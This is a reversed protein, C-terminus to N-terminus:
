RARLIACAVTTRVHPELDAAVVAARGLDGLLALTSGAAARTKADSAAGDRELIPTIQSIQAKALAERAAAAGLGAASAIPLLRAIIAERAPSRPPAGGHEAPTELRRALAAVAVAEDPDSEAKAVAERLPALSMPVLKIAQIRDASPGDKVAREMAGAAEAAGTGGAHVLASAALIAAPGRQTDVVWSLERRGGGPLSRPSAWAAVIAERASADARPWLDKLATVVREGGLAGAARIAQDRAAPYPDVRAAELVAEVDGPDAATSAAHLANRRVEEDGDAILRRRLDGEDESVLSRAGLPRFAAEPDGAERHAWAAYRGPAELGAEVLLLAAAAGITDRKDARHGLATDVERVCPELEHLRTLGDEGAARAIEGHAVARAFASADGASLRGRAVQASLQERVGEFRGLEAARIAPSGACRTSALSALAALVPLLRSSSAPAPQAV